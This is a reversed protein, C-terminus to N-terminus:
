PSTSVHQSDRWQGAEFDLSNHEMESGFTALDSGGPRPPDNAQPPEETGHLILEWQTIQAANEIYLIMILFSQLVINNSLFLIQCM